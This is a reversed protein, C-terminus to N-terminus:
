RSCSVVADNTLTFTWKKQLSLLSELSRGAIRTRLYSVKYFNDLNYSHSSQPTTTLLCRNTKPLSPLGPGVLNQLHDLNM